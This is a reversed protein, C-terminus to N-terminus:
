PKGAKEEAKIRRWQARLEEEDTIELGAFVHPHRRILKDNISTLVEDVSFRGCEENIQAMMVVIFLLDGLEEAINAADDNNIATVLEEVEAHLYKLMSQTTQRKDWPCGKEGRLTEITNRLYAFQTNQHCM